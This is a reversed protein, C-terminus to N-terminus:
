GDALAATFTHGHVDIAVTGESGLTENGNGLPEAEVLLLHEIVDGVSSRMVRVLLILKEQLCSGQHTLISKREHDNVRRRSQVSRIVATSTLQRSTLHMETLEQARQLSNGVLEAHCDDDRVLDHGLYITAGHECTFCLLRDATVDNRM